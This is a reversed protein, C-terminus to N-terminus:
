GTHEQAAADPGRTNIRVQRTALEKLALAALLAVNEAQKGKLWNLQGHVLLGYLHDIEEPACQKYWEQAEAWNQDLHMQSVVIMVDDAPM